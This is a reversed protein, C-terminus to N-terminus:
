RVASWYRRATPWRCCCGTPPIVGMADLRPRLFRTPYLNPHDQHGVCRHRRARDGVTRFCRRRCRRELRLQDARAAAAAGAQWLAQRRSLGFCDFAGAGALGELHRIDLEARRCTTSTPTTGAGTENPSSGGQWRTAWGACRRSAWGCNPARTRWHRGRCPRTSTPRHVAGTGGPTPSWRSRPTFGMPQARLLAACFAAPHHLEAVGFLVGALRLEAFPKGPFWIPSRPWRRTSATPPRDPSRIFVNWEKTSDDACNGEMRRTSRKSVGDGPAVSRGPAADFGAVDVALQM